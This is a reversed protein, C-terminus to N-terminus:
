RDFIFPTPIQMSVIIAPPVDSSPRSLLLILVAKDSQLYSMLYCISTDPWYRRIIAFMVNTDVPFFDLFADVIEYIKLSKWVMKSTM